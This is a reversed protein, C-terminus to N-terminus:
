FYGVYSIKDKGEQFGAKENLSLTVEVEKIFGERVM